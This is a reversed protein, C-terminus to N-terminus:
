QRLQDILLVLTAVSVTVQVLDRVFTFYYEFPKHVKKAVFIEDGPELRTDDPDVWNKTGLKLVRLKDRDAEKGFGGAQQIYYRHNMNEIFTVFGPNVVQGFVYVTLRSSPVYIEDGDVLAVDASQEHDIFLKVFDARALRRKAKSEYTFYELQDFRLDTLRFDDPNNLLLDVNNYTRVVKSEALSADPLFGGALAMIESLTTVNQFIPYFGPRQVAGRVSVMHEEHSKQKERIVIRDSPQLAVDPAQGQRIVQLNVSFSQVQKGDPLFRTVEVNELEALATPGQAIQLLALLSDGQHFEFRGPVRVGGYISVSNGALNEAPAWIVDRDLVRPNYRADGSAYYRVLDVDLTDGTARFVKINRLSIVPRESATRSTLSPPNAQYILRDVRDVGTAALVGPNVVAGAVTVRFSRLSWLHVTIDGNAFKKRLSQQVKTKVNALTEGAVEIVGFSPIILAGEPTVPGAHTFPVLGWVYVVLVDLPGVIYEEPNIAGELQFNPIAQELLRSPDATFGPGYRFAEPKAKELFLSQYYDGSKDLQGSSGSTSFPNPREDSTKKEQSFQSRLPSNSLLLFIIIFGGLFLSRM